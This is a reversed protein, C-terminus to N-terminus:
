KSQNNNTQTQDNTTTTIGQKIAKIIQSDEKLKTTWVINDKVLTIQNEPAFVSDTFKQLGLSNDTENKQIYYVDTMKFSPFTSLHGFYLDGTKLYVAYYSDVTRSLYFFYASTLLIIVSLILIFINNKSM